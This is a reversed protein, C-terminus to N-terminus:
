QLLPVGSEYKCIRSPKNTNGILGDTYGFFFGFFASFGAVTGDKFAQLIKGETFEYGAKYGEMFLARFAPKFQGLEINFKDPNYPLGLVGTIVGVFAGANAGAVTTATDISGKGVNGNAIERGANFGLNYYPDFPYPRKCQSKGYCTTPCALM